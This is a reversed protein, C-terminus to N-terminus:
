EWRSFAMMCPYDMMPDTSIDPPAVDPKSATPNRRVDFNQTSPSGQSESASSSAPTGTGADSPRGAILRLLSPSQDEMVLMTPM